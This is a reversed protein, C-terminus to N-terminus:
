TKHHKTSSVLVCLYVYPKEQNIVHTEGSNIYPVKEDEKILLFQDTLPNYSNNGYTYIPTYPIDKINTKGLSFDM